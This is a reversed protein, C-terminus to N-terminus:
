LHNKWLLPLVTVKIPINASAVNSATLNITGQYTGAPTGDPVKVTIWYQQNYNADINVPQLTAADQPQINSLNAAPDSINTYSGDSNRLSNTKATFDVKVLTPDKLLLEPALTINNVDQSGVGSQYWVKVYRIDINSAPISNSGSISKSANAQMGTVGQFAHVVFSAPM